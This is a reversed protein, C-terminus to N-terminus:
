GVTSPLFSSSVGVVLVEPSSANVRVMVARTPWVKSNTSVMRSAPM